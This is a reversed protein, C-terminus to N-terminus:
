ASVHMERFGSPTPSYTRLDIILDKHGYLYLVQTLSDMLAYDLHINFLLNVGDDHEVNLYLLPM